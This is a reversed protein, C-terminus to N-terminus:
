RKDKLLCCVACPVEIACMVGLQEMSYECNVSVGADKARQLLMTRLDGDADHALFVKRATGRNLAKKTTNLGVAISCPTFQVDSM